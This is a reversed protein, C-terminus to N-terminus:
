KRETPKVRWGVAKQSGDASNLDDNERIIIQLYVRSKESLGCFPLFYYCIFFSVFVYDGFYVLLEHLEIGSFHVIWDFIPCFIYFSMEGFFVHVHSIFM